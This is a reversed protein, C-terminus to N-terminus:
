TRQISNNYLIDDITINLKIPNDIVTRGGGCGIEPLEKDKCAGYCVNCEGNLTITFLIAFMMLVLVFTIMGYEFMREKDM